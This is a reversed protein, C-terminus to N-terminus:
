RDSEDNLTQIIKQCQKVYDEIKINYIGIKDLYEKHIDYDCYWKWTSLLDKDVIYYKEFSIGDKDKEFFPNFQGSFFLELKKHFLYYYLIQDTLKSNSSGM